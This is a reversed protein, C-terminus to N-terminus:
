CDKTVLAERFRAAAAEIQPLICKKVAALASARAAKNKADEQGDLKVDSLELEDLEDVALNPVTLRGTVNLPEEGGQESVAANWKCEVKFEFGVRKKGRVLWINADGDAKKVESLAVVVAGSEAECKVQLLQRSLEEKAWKSVDREEFTQAANWLSGSGSASKHMAHVQQAEEESIKKVKPAKSSASTSAWSSYSLEGKATAQEQLKNSPPDQAM